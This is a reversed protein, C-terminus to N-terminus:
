IFSSMVRVCVFLLALVCVCLCRCVCVCACACMGGQVRVLERKSPVALNCPFACGLDNGFLARVFVCAVRM